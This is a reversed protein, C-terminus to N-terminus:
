GVRDAEVFHGWQWSSIRSWSIVSKKASTTNWRFQQIRAMMPGVCFPSRPIFVLFFASAATEPRPSSIRPQPTFISQRHWTWGSRNLVFEQPRSRASDAQWFLGPTLSHLPSKDGILSLNARALLSASSDRALILTVIACWDDGEVKPRTAPRPTPAPM